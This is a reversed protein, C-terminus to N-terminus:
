VPTVFLVCIEEDNTNPPPTARPAVDKTTHVRKSTKANWSPHLNVSNMGSFGRRTNIDAMGFPSHTPVIQVHEFPSFSASTSLWARIINKEMEM